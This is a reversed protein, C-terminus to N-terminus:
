KKTIKLDKFYGETGIDVWLGIAGSKLNGKMNKISLTPETNDNIYLTAQQGQVEIRMTIWENLGIDASTEFPGGPTNNINDMKYNPFSYYQVAQNRVNPYASRGVKPRLYMAEFASNDDNIRFALGIFGWSDPYPTNKQIRSYVKVEITGNEFDSDKLRAYLPGNVTAGLRKADFPLAKLDREVKLVEEGNLKVVSATVNVLDFSRDQLTIKQKCAAFTYLILLLFIQYTRTMINQQKLIKSFSGSCLFCCNDVNTRNVLKGAM